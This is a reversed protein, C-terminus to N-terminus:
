VRFGLGGFRSSFVREFGPTKLASYMPPALGIFGQALGRLESSSGSGSRGSLKKVHLKTPKPSLTQPTLSPAAAKQLQPLIAFFACM